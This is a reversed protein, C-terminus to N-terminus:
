QTAVAIDTVYYNDFTSIYDITAGGDNSSWLSAGGDADPNYGSFFVDNETPGCTLAELRFDPENKLITTSESTTRFLATDNLFYISDGIVCLEEVALGWLPEPGFNQDKFKGDATYASYFYSLGDCSPNPPGKPICGSGFLYCDGSPLCPMAFYKYAVGRREFSRKLQKFNQGGDTSHFPPQDGGTVFVEDGRVSIRPFGVYGFSGVSKIKGLKSFSGPAANSISKYVHAKSGSKSLVVVYVNSPGAPDVLVDAISYKDQTLNLVVTAMSDRSGSSADMVYLVSRMWNERGHAGFAFVKNPNNPFSKLNSISWASDESPFKYVETFNVGGNSSYQLITPQDIIDREVSYLSIKKQSSVQCISLCVVVVILLVRM